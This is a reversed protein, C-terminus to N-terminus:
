NRTTVRYFVSQWQKSLVESWNTISSTAFFTGANTWAPTSLDLSRNVDYTSGATLNTISLSAIDGLVSIGNILVASSPESMVDVRVPESLPQADGGFLIVELTESGADPLIGGRMLFGPITRTGESIVVTDGVNLQQGGVFAWTLALDTPDSVGVSFSITGANGGVTSSPSVNLTMASDGTSLDYNDFQSSSYAGELIIGYEARSDAVTITFTIPTTFTVELDDGAASFEIDANGEGVLSGLLALASIIAHLSTNHSMSNTQKGFVRM